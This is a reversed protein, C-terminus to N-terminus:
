KGPRASANYVFWGKPRMRTPPMTSTAAAEVTGTLSSAVAALTATAAHWVLARCFRLRADADDLSFRAQELQNLWVRHYARVCKWSYIDVDGM